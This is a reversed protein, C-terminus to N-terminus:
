CCAPCAGHLAGQHHAADSTQQHQCCCAAAQVLTLAIHLLQLLYCHYLHLSLRQPTVRLVLLLMRLAQTLLLLLVPQLLL